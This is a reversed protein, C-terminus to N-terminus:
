LPRNRHSKKKMFLLRKGNLNMKELMIRSCEAVRGILFKDM